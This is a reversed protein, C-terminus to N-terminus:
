THPSKSPDNRGVNTGERVTSIVLDQEQHM